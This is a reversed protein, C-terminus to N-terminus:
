FLVIHFQRRGAEVVMMQVVEPGDRLFPVEGTGGFSQADGLRRERRLDTLELFLESLL